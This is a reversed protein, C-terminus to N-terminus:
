ANRRRNLEAYLTAVMASDGRQNSIDMATQIEAISLEQLTPPKVAPKFAMQVSSTPSQLREIEGLAADLTRFKQAIEARKM